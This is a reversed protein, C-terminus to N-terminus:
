TSRLCIWSQNAHVCLSLRPTFVYSMRTFSSYIGKSMKEYLVPGGKTDLSRMDSICVSIYWVPVCGEVPSVDPSLSPLQHADEMLPPLRASDLCMM